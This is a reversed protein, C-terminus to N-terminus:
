LSREVAATCGSTPAAALARKRRGSVRAKAWRNSTQDAWRDGDLHRRRCRWLRGSRYNLWYRPRGRWGPRNGNRRRRPRRHDASGGRRWNLNKGRSRIAPIILPADRFAYDRVPSRPNSDLGDTGSRCDSQVRGRVPTMRVKPGQAAPGKRSGGLAPQRDSRGAAPAARTPM